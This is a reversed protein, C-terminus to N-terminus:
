EPEYESFVENRILSHRMANRGQKLKEKVIIVM